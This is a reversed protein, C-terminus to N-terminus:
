AKPVITVKFRVPAKTDPVKVTLNDASFNTYKEGDATVAGISISGAPLLDPAVRLTNNKFGEPQPKFYFDMPQKTILLNIYVASLYCLESAHYNSMSHSGKHRENGVLYPMGTGLVNFYV